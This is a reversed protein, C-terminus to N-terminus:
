KMLFALLFEVVSGAALRKGLARAVHDPGADGGGNHDGNGNGDIDNGALLRGDGGSFDQRDPRMRMCASVDPKSALPAGMGCSLKSWTSTKAWTLSCLWVSM